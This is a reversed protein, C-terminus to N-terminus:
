KIRKVKMRINENRIKNLKDCVQVRRLIMITVVKINNM